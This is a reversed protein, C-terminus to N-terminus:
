GDIPDSPSSRATTSALHADVDTLVEAAKRKDKLYARVLLRALLRLGAKEPDSVTVDELPMKTQDSRNRNGGHRGAEM